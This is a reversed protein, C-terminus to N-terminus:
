KKEKISDFIFEEYGKEVEVLIVNTTLQHNLFENLMRLEWIQFQIEDFDFLM